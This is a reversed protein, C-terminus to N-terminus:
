LEPDSRPGRNCRAAVTELYTGPPRWPELYWGEKDPAFRAHCRYQEKMGPTDTDPQADVVQRWGAQAAAPSSWRRGAPSPIVELTPLGDDRTTWTVSEILSDAEGVTVTVPETREASSRLRVQVQQGRSQLRVVGDPEPPLYAVQLRNGADLLLLSGDSQRAAQGGEPVQGPLTATDVAVPFTVRLGADTREVRAVPDPAAPACGALGALLLVAAARRSRM